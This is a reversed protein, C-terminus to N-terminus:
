YAELGDLPTHDKGAGFQASTLGEGCRTEMPLQRATCSKQDATGAGAADGPVSRM